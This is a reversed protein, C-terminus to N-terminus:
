VKGGDAFGPAEVIDSDLISLTVPALFGGRRFQVRTTGAGAPENVLKGRALVPQGEYRRDQPDLRVKSGPTPSAMRSELALVEKASLPAAAVTVPAMAARVFDLCEGMSGCYLPMIVGAEGVGFQRLVLDLGTVMFGGKQAATITMQQAPPKTTSGAQGISGSTASTMRGRDYSDPIEM